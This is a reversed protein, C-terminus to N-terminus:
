LLREGSGAEYRRVIRFGSAKPDVGVSVARDHAGETAGIRAFTKASDLSDYPGWPGEALPEDSGVALAWVYYGQGNAAYRHSIRAAEREAAEAARRHIAGRASFGSDELAMAKEMEHDYKDLLRMYQAEDDSEWLPPNPVAHHQASANRAYPKRGTRAEYDSWAARSAEERAQWSQLGRAEADRYGRAYVERWTLDENPTHEPEKLDREDLFWERHRQCTWGLPRLQYVWNSHGCLECEPRIGLDIRYRQWKRKEPDMSADSGSENPSHTTFRPDKALCRPCTPRLQLGDPDAYADTLAGSKVTGCIADDTEPWATHTLLTRESLDRARYQGALVGRTEFASPAFQTIRRHGTM